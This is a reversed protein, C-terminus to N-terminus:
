RSTAAFCCSAPNQSSMQPYWAYSRVIDGAFMTLVSKWDQVIPKDTADNKSDDKNDEFITNYLRLNGDGATSTLVCLGDPSFSCGQLFNDNGSIDCSQSFLQPNLPM